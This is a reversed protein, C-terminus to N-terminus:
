LMYSVQFGSTVARAQVAGAGAIPRGLFADINFRRVSGRVGVVTGRLSKRGLGYAGPGGIHGTDLGVYSAMPLSGWPASLTNRWYWGRDGALTQEGNFGRVTYRGGLTIFESGYLPRSSHQLRYESSWQLPLAGVRFPIALSADFTNVAYTFSPDDRGHGRADGQGGLWALGRRHALRLDVQANGVYQRQVLAVEGHTVNRRQSAIEVDEIFSHAWRKGLRFEIATKGRSDRHLLRQLTIDANRSKGSSLFSQEFGDVQQQYRYDSLSASATWKGWPVSYYGNWGRTGATALRPVSRSVGINLADNIGLVNDFTGNLGAQRRGTAPAGSDDLSVVANWPRTRAVSIVLDSAGAVETPAIDISVDQSSLRKFQEVAQEIDRLNLLDGPRAPLAFRWNGVVVDPSAMRVAHITGAALALKLTGGSSAQPVVGVRTTVYGREVILDSVRRVILNLGESGVCRGRYRDLYRQAFAFAEAHDGELIIADLRHCIAEVPLTTQRWRYPSAPVDLRVDPAEQQAQRARAERQARDRQEQQDLSLQAHVAPSILLVVLAIARRGPLAQQM